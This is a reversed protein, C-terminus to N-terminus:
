GDALGQLLWSSLAGGPNGSLTCASTSGLIDETGPKPASQSNEDTAETTLRERRHSDRSRPFMPDLTTREDGEVPSFGVSPTGIPM